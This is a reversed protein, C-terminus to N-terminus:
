NLRHQLLSMKLVMTVHSVLGADKHKLLMFVKPYNGKTRSLCNDKYVGGTSRLSLESAGPM